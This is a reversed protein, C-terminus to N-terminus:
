LKDILTEIADFNFAEGYTVITFIFYGSSVCIKM